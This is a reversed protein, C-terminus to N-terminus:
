EKPLFPDASCHLTVQSPPAGLQILAKNQIEVDACIKSFAATGSAIQALLMGDQRVATADPSQTQGVFMGVFYIVLGVGVYALKKLM